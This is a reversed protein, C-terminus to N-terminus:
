SRRRRSFIKKCNPYKKNIMSYAVAVAQKRSSFKGDKYEKTTQKIKNQLAEVNKSTM